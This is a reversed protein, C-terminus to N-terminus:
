CPTHLISPHLWTVYAVPDTEQRSIGARDTRQLLQDYNHRTYGDFCALQQVTLPESSVFLIAEKVPATFHGSPPAVMVAHTVVFSPAPAPARHQLIATM